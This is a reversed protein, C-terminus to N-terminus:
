PPPTLPLRLTFCAGQGIGASDARLSGGHLEALQRAIALGVGLGGHPRSLGAEPPRFPTFIEALRRPAIGIGHDTVSLYVAHADHRLDLWVRSGIASFKIANGLLKCLLQGLREPDGRLLADGGAHRRELVIGASSASSQMQLLATDALALASLTCLQLQLQGSSLSGLDLLDDILGAQIRANREIALLGRQLRTHSRGDRRLVQAWGQIVSTTTRLEHSLNSLMQATTDLILLEQIEPALQQDSGPEAPHSALKM